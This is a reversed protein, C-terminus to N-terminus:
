DKRDISKDDQPAGHPPDGATAAQAGRELKRLRDRIAPLQRVNAAAKEWGANDMLPFVGSYFGPKRISRTVLSMASIVVDDCIELHGLIGASGGIMCRRGIRASGAVGVCGALATHEGIVVNHGIQILNDLKCGDGIVTDELAGRDISCNSGIEVDDGIVVAGLQPIKAWRGSERAFGFGDSGIVSGSHVIARAGIVCDHYVVVGPHLRAAAGVSVDRGLYVGAGIAGGEGVRVGAEIVAHAGVSVGTALSASPDISATPHVLRAPPPPELMQAFWRAVGAFHAYPDAVVIRAVSAPLADALAASVIVATAGTLGAEARHRAASLFGLDGPRAASLSALRRVALDPSACHLEGGFREILEGLTVDRPLPRAM